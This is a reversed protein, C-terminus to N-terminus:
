IHYFPLGNKSHDNANKIKMELLRKSSATSSKLVEIKKLKEQITDELAFIQEEMVKADSKGAEYKSVLIAHHDKLIDLEGVIKDNQMSVSHLTELVNAVLPVLTSLPKEGYHKLIKEFEAYIDLTLQHLKANGDNNFHTDGIDVGLFEHSEAM